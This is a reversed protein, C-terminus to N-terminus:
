TLGFHFHLTSTFIFHASRFLCIFPKTFLRLGVGEALCFCICVKHTSFISDDELMSRLSSNHHINMLYACLGLTGIVDLSKFFPHM